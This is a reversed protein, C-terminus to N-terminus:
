EFKGASERFARHICDVLEHTYNETAKTERGQCPTHLHTSDIGPCRKGVLSRLLPKNNTAIRWPKKVFLESCVVSRMNYACGDFDVVALDFRALLAVVRTWRWYACARPWEIAIHGSLGNVKECLDEFKLWLQDFLKIHVQYKM